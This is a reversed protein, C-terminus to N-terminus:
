PFLKARDKTIRWLYRDRQRDRREPAIAVFDDKRFTQTDWEPYM